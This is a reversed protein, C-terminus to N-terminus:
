EAMTELLFPNAPTARISINSRSRSLAQVGKRSGAKTTSAGGKRGCEPPAYWIVPSAWPPRSSNERLKSMGSIASPSPRDPKAKARGVRATHAAAKALIVSLPGPPEAVRSRFLLRGM